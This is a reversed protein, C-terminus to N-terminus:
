KVTVTQGSKGPFDKFLAAALTRVTTTPDAAPTGAAAATEARGEWIVTGESRRKIQVALLLIQLLVVGALLVLSKHRSPIGVM